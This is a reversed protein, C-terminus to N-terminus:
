PRVVVPESHLWALLIGTFERIVRRHNEPDEKPNYFASTFGHFGKVINNPKKSDIDLLSALEECKMAKRLIVVKKVSIEYRNYKAGRGTYPDVDLLHRERCLSGDEWSSIEAVGILERKEINMMYVLTGSSLEVRKDSSLFSKDERSLYQKLTDNKFVGLVIKVDSGSCMKHKEEQCSSFTKLTPTKLVERDIDTLKTDEQKL